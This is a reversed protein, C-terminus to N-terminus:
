ASGMHAEVSGRVFHMQEAIPLGQELTSVVANDYAIEAATRKGIIQEARALYAKIMKKKM